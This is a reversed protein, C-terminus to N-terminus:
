RDTIVKERKTVVEKRDNQYSLVLFAFSSIGMFRKKSKENAGGTM